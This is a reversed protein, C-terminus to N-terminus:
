LFAPFVGSSPTRVQRVCTEVAHGQEGVARQEDAGDLGAVSPGVLADATSDSAGRDRQLGGEQYCTSYIFSPM